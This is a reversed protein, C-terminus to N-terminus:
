DIQVSVRRGAKHAAVGVVDRIAKIVKGQKGIVKGKDGDDVVLRLVTADGDVTEAVSVAEPKDVLKQVVFLALDKV